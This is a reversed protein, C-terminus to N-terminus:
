LLHFNVEVMAIVAVPTGNKLAPQFKWRLVAEIAKQDLGMGLGRVVATRAVKGNTDIVIRLLVTGNLKAKRAKESYEPDVKRVISPASDVAASKYVRYPLGEAIRDLDSPGSAVQPVPASQALATAPLACRFGRDVAQSLPEVMMRSSARVAGAESSWSGGRIAAAGTATDFGATWEWTNGLMDYLGFSNPQKGGVPHNERGSNGTYWAIAELSGYRPSQTGARAAYEWEEQSPLRGQIAGCFDAAENWAVNEVPLRAGKHASPNKGTIREYAAQTVETEGLWFGPAVEESHPPKEAVDCDADDPSCGMLFRGPPIWVYNQNDRPNLVPRSAQNAVASLAPPAGSAAPPHGGIIATNVADPDISGGSAVVEFGAILRGTDRATTGGTDSALVLWPQTAYTHARWSAGAPLGFCQPVRVGRADILYIDVAGQLRNVFEIIVPKAFNVSHLTEDVMVPDLPKLVVDARAIGVAMLLFLFSDSIARRM